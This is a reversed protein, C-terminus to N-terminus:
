KNWMIKFIVADAKDEFYWTINTLKIVYGDEDPNNLDYEKTYSFKGKSDNRQCWLKLSLFGNWTVCVKHWKLASKKNVFKV